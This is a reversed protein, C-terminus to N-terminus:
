ASAQVDESRFVGGCYFQLLTFGIFFIFDLFTKCEFVTRLIFLFLSVGCVFNIFFWNFRHFLSAWIHKKESLRTLDYFFM